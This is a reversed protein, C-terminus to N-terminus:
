GLIEPVRKIDPDTFLDNEDTSRTSFESVVAGQPGGQFWHWTEPYITYQEGAQLVVEHWVNYTSARKSPPKTKPTGTPEGSVYLYVEGWRCRFTEEKGPEGNVPPHLHQPCTQGPFLVLEKACCRETNIYTILALGTTEFESLGFDAIELKDVEAPTLVIGARDLYSKAKQQYDLRQQQTLAM